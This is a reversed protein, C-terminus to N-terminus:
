IDETYEQLALPVPLGAREAARAVAEPSEFGLRRIAALNEETPTTVGVNILAAELKSVEIGPMLYRFDVNQGGTAPNYAMVLGFFGGSVGLSRAVISREAERGMPVVADRPTEFVETIAPHSAYSVEVMERPSGLPVVYPPVIFHERDPVRVDATDTPPLCQEPSTLDGPVSFTGDPATLTSFAFSRDLETLLDLGQARFLRAVTRDTDPTAEPDVWKTLTDPLPTGTEVAAAVVAQVNPYGTARLNMTDGFSPVEPAARMTAVAIRTATLGAPHYSAQNLQVGQVESLTLAYFGDLQGHKDIGAAVDAHAREHGVKDNLFEEVPMGPHGPVGRWQDPYQTALATKLEEPSEAIVMNPPINAASRSGVTVTDYHSPNEPGNVYTTEEPLYFSANTRRNAHADAVAELIAERSRTSEVPDLPADEGPLDTPAVIDNIDSTETSSADLTVEYPEAFGNVDSEDFIGEM